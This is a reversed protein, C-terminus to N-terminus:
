KSNEKLIIKLEPFQKILTEVQADFYSSLRQYDPELQFIRQGFTEANALNQNVNETEKALALKYENGTLKEDMLSNKLNNLQKKNFRVRSFILDYNEIFRSYMKYIGKYKDFNMLFEMGSSDPKIKELVAIQAKMENKRENITVLDIKLYNLAKENKVSLSDISGREVAYKKKCGQIAFTILVIISILIISTKLIRMVTNINGTFQSPNM